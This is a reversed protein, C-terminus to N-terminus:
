VSFFVHKSKEPNSAKILNWTNQRDKLFQLKYLDIMPIDNQLPLTSLIDQGGREIELATKTDM